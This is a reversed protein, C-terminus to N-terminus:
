GAAGSQMLLLYQARDQENMRQVSGGAKELLAQAELKRQEERLKALMGHFEAEIDFDEGWQMVEGQAATLAAEFPTGQFQQIIAATSAAYDQERLYGTLAAIAATEDSDSRWEVPLERALEPKALLCRLFVRMGSIERRAARQPAPRYGGSPIGSAIPKVAYLAELEAQTVGALAAVEKRLLLATSPATIATLLPRASELLASRGEQTKLDVQSSLERLLYGSLPLAEEGLLREFADKGHERIYSDPDHEPPLFLFRLQKGDQLHPLANELARWAARRGAADGDFCFVVRDTMRLLKQIHYPTTATGLTAVGYEVGLQALAVVDMYGEVVLALGDNRIAKQAQFLGYLERGKEFLPTEPSNLYKPEGRDLVRGGFGIVQGRQNIIPFMIRDRFRDYRKGEDNAIVLGTEVLSKDQYNPVAAELNQWNDPAYGIGFRAAIEGSLGRGKLYQIARPSKKLQERYYRTATQMLEYLDPAAKHLAQGPAAAERPVTVGISRALEEVADVFGMGSHEMVFGIATGHAGCGFCHYFQKSQSVTFSPSKENHFPCCAVYNAGAKKLPVYREIVDVIDLRNLLDQIFNKPIM